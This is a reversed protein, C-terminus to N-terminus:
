LGEAPERAAGCQAVQARIRRRRPHERPCLCQGGAGLLARAPRLPLARARSLEADARARVRWLRADAGSGPRDRGESPRPLLSDEDRRALDRFAARRGHELRRVAAPLAQIAAPAAAPEVRFLTPPTLMGEVTAFALDSTSATANLHITSKDPLAVAAAAGAATPRAPSPRSGGRCTRSINSGCSRIARPSKRSRRTSTPFSCRRSRPRRARRAPRSDFLRRARWCSPGAVADQAVRHRARRARGVIDADDPLPSPVLRGDPRSIASRTITSISRVRHPDALHPRRRGALRANVSVDRRRGRPLRRRLASLPTGRKWLKM